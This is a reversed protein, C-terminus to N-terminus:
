DASASGDPTWWARSMTETTQKTIPGSDQTLLIAGADGGIWQRMEELGEQLAFEPESGYRIAAAVRAGLAIRLIAEGDGTASFATEGDAYTGCGPIPSDGVRGPLKGCTGGTSTAAAMVGSEDRAVAGVTGGCGGAWNGGGGNKLMSALAAEAEPTKLDALSCRRFGREVAWQAAPEGTLIVTPHELLEAAIAVPNQFPPLAGVSGLKLTKGCMVAADLSIEGDRMLASGRGANFLPDDELVKVAAVVADLASGGAELVAGGSEAARQCSERRPERLDEPVDGCGGHVLVIPNTM